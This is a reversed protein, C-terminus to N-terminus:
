QLDPDIADVADRVEDLPADSMGGEREIARAIRDTAQAWFPWFASIPDLSAPMAALSGLGALRRPLAKPLRSATM